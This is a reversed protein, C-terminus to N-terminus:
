LKIGLIFIPVVLQNYIDSGAYGNQFSLGDSELTVIRTRGTGTSMSAGTAGVGTLMFVPSYFYGSSSDGYFGVAILDYDSVPVKVIQPSFSSNPNPNKWLMDVQSGSSISELNLGM